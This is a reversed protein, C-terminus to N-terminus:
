FEDEAVLLGDIWGPAFGLAAKNPPKLFYAATLAKILGTTLVVNLNM